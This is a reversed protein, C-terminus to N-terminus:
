VEGGAKAPDVYAALRDPDFERLRELDHVVFHAAQPERGFERRYEDVIQRHLQQEAEPSEVQWVYIRDADDELDHLIETPGALHRHEDVYDYVDIADWDLDAALRDDDVHERLEVDDWDVADAVPVFLLRAIGRVVTAKVSM